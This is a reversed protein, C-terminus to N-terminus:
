CQSFIRKVTAVLTAASVPKGQLVRVVGARLLPDGVQHLHNHDDAMLVVPIKIGLDNLRRAIAEGDLELSCIMVDFQPGSAITMADVANQVVTVAHGARKLGDEYLRALVSENEALFVRM